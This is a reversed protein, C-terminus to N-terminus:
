FTAKAQLRVWLSRYNQTVPGQLDCNRPNRAHHACPLPDSEEPYKEWGSQPHWTCLMKQEVQRRHLHIKAPKLFAINFYAWMLGKNTWPKNRADLNLWNELSYIQCISQKIEASCMEYSRGNNMHSMRYKNMKCKGAQKGAQYYNPKILKKCYECCKSSM